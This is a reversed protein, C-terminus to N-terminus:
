KRGSAKKAQALFYESVVNLLFTMMLLLVGVAFLASCHMSGSPAEGMEGAISATMTRVSQALDWWPHPIQTANGSAMWVVMTEGIARMMGLVVAAIIGSHAAPIVVRVITELRTAGLSYSAERLEPGLASISDEAVTVITPLAMVALILSANLANTGTTFGFEGQMWPALVLIAFFGYAVSPIAALIEIVPKVIERTKPHAVDAIYAACAIGLPVAIAMAGVTAMLTSLIMALLGYSAKEPSLPDWQTKLFFEGLGISKLAPFGEWFLISFIGMLIVIALLGNALFFNEIWKEKLRRWFARRPRAISKQRKM